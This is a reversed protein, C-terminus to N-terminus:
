TANPTEGTEVGVASVGTGGIASDVSVARKAHDPCASNHCFFHEISVTSPEAM